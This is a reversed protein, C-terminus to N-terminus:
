AAGGAAMLRDYAARLLLFARNAANVADDGQGNFRDPHHVRVLRRFAVEIDRRTASEDLGLVALDRMRQLSPGGCGRDGAVREVRLDEREKSVWRWGPEPRWRGEEDAALVHPARCHGKGPSWVVDFCGPLHPLRWSYGPCPHWEGETVGTMLHTDSFERGPAWRVALSEGDEPAVWVYGQQPRWNGAQPGAVLHKEPWRKGPTWRVEFDGARDSTWEFGPAPTAGSETRVVNPPLAAEPDSLRKWAWQAAKAALIGWWHPMM